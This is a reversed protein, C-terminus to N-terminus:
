YYIKKFINLKNKIFSKKFFNEQMKNLEKNLNDYEIKEDCLMIQSHSTISLNKGLTLEEITKEGKNLGIIKIPIDGRPNKSNKVTFGSLNIIKQAISLISIQEGMDLAYIKVGVKNLYSANIVLQVAESINMFYRKAKISTVTLPLKEQIQKLFIPIVSGSSGIVNGFRVITFSANYNNKNKEYLFKVLKEGFKKTIGLISKPNVAKDSSIFIFNKVKKYIAFDVVIKTGFINNKIMTYPNEEGISVHKYAAAHYIEDITLKSFSHKLFQEDNCDGLMPKVINKNFQNSKKLKNILNFLSIESIDLIYVKKPKHKLIEICLESGISGAGGTVLVCKDKIKRKLIKTEVKIKPRDIIDFFNLKTPRAYDSFHDLIKIRINKNKLENFLNTVEKKSLSKNGVIVEKISQYKIVNLLEEKKYIKIGNLERRKHMGSTDILGKISGYSQKFRLNNILEVHSQNVGIILINNDKKNKNKNLNILFNIFVRHIIILMGIIIPAIFSISRPFYISKYLYMNIGIAIISFIFTAKIIKLISFQDFYRLLINYTNNIFFIFYFSILYILYIEIEIKWPLYIKELRLSFAASLSVIVIVLDSIILFVKKKINSANNAIFTRM